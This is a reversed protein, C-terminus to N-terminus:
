HLESNPKASKKTYFGAIGGAGLCLFILGPILVSKNHFDQTFIAYAMLSVGAISFAVTNRVNQFQKALPDPTTRNPSLIQKVVNEPLPQGKEIMMKLVEIRKQETRNSFYRGGLVLAIVFLFFAIPVLVDELNDSRHMHVKVSPGDEEDQDENHYKNGANFEILPKASQPTAVTSQSSAVSEPSAFATSMYVFAFTAILILNKM